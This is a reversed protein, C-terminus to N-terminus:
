SQGRQTTALDRVATLLFRSNTVLYRRWLRRPEQVLRFAWEMGAKQVWGPARQKREALVEFSGGIGVAVNVGLDEWNDMIFKEQRPVGMGVFLIKAGSDRINKVREATEAATFFGDAVHLVLGPNESELKRAAATVTPLEAGMLYMGFGERVAAAAMSEVLDIGTVREPLGPSGTMRSLVVLPVGDALTIASREVYRNLIEDDRSMMAIAVNVTSVWGREGERIIRVIGAVCETMTMSNFRIDAVRFHTM